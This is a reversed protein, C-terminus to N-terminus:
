YDYHEEQKSIYNIVENFDETEFSDDITYTGDRKSIKHKSSTNVEDVHLKYCMYRWKRKSINGIIDGIGM